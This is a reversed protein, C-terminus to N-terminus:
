QITFNFFFLKLLFFFLPSWIPLFLIGYNQISHHFKFYIFNKYFSWSFFQFGFCHPGFQFFFLVMIKSQLIFNFVLLVKVFHCFFFSNSIFLILIPTSIDMVFVVLNYNKFLFLFFCFFVGSFVFQEVM